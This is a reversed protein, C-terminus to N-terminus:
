ILANKKSRYSSQRRVHQLLLLQEFLTLGAVTTFWANRRVHIQFISIDRNANVCNINRTVYNSLFVSNIVAVSIM